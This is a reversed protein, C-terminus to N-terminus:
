YVIRLGFLSTAILYALAMATAMRIHRRARSRRKELTRYCLFVVLCRLSVVEFQYENRFAEPFIALLLPFSLMLFDSANLILHKRRITLFLFSLSSIFLFIFLNNYIPQLNFVSGMFIVKLSNQNNALVLTFCALAIALSEFFDNNTSRLVVTSILLILVPIAAYGISVPINGAFIPSIALVVFLCYKNIREWHQVMAHFNPNEQRAREAFKKTFNLFNDQFYTHLIMASGIILFILTAGAFPVWSMVYRPYILPSLGMIGALMCLFYMVTVSQSQSLGIQVLSHHFHSKDASMPPKGAKLRIFIVFASDAVPLAFCMIVSVLTILEGHSPTNSISALTDLVMLIQIGIVFGLWNSGSDGMFISAPHTNYKLFGILAGVIPLSLYVLADLNQTLLFQLYSLMMLSIISVGGALGDLGDIMNLANIAGVVVFVSFVFGLWWPLSIEWSPTFALKTIVLDSSLIAFASILVQLWFRITAPIPSIDDMVGLLFVLLSSLLIGSSLIAESKWIYFCILFSLLIPIGGLRPTPTSHIKRGIASPNHSDPHDYLGYVSAIRLVLPTIGASTVIATVFITVLLQLDM